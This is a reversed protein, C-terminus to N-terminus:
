NKRMVETDNPLVVKTDNWRQGSSYVRQPSTPTDTCAFLPQTNGVIICSTTSHKCKVASQDASVNATDKNKQYSDYAKICNNYM